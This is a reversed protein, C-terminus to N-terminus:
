SFPHEKYILEHLIVGLSYIDCKRTYVTKERTNLIIEPAMTTPTGCKMSVVSLNQGIYKAFGFDSIKIVGEKLLINELKM